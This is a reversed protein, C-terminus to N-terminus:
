KQHKEIKLIIKKVDDGIFNKNYFDIINQYTMHQLYKIMKQKYNFDYAGSIISVFNDWSREMIQTKKELINDITAKVCDNFLQENKTQSTLYEKM